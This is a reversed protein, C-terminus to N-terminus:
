AREAITDPFQQQALVCKTWENVPLPKSFLYGQSLDCGRQKLYEYQAWHEVGEAITKVKLAKSMNLIVDVITASSDEHEIEDVFCKDIKLEDIPLEKLYSLSSYGTGFDDISFRFGVRNLSLMVEKVLQIDSVLSTETLELILSKPEVQYERTITLLKEKFDKQVIQRGSINVAVQTDIGQQAFHALLKCVRQIVWEGIAFIADSEEAMPIFLAPSVFGLEKSKWRLLAESSNFCDENAYQPQLVIELEDSHTVSELLERIRKDREYDTQQGTGMFYHGYPAQNKANDRAFELVDVLSEYSILSAKSFMSGISVTPTEKKGGLVVNFNDPQLMKNELKSIDSMSILNSDAKVVSMIFFSDVSNKFLRTNAPLLQELSCAISKILKDGASYGYRMNYYSLKDIDVLACYIEQEQIEALRIVDRLEREFWRRNKLGTIRDTYAAKYVSEQARVRDSLDRVVGIYIAQQNFTAKSLSLEMQFIENNKRLAPLQRGIGMIKAKGTALYQKIYSDHKSAHPEPMLQSILLGEMENNAYGFIRKAACNVNLIQGSKTITVVADNMCNLVSQLYEREYKENNLLTHQETIDEFVGYVNTVQGVENARVRGSTRVRKNNGKSDTFGCETKYSKGLLVAENFLTNIRERDTSAYYDFSQEPTVNVDNPLGHIEYIEPSWYLKETRLNYEWAGAKTINSLEELLELQANLGTNAFYSQALSNMYSGFIRFPYQWRQLDTPKSFLAVLIGIPGSENNVIPTGLYAKIGMQKLLIDETFIDEVDREVSCTNNEQIQECPSGKLEYCFNDILRDQSLTVMTEAQLTKRNVSALFLYDTQIFRQLELLKNCFEAHYDKVVHAFEHSKTINYKM